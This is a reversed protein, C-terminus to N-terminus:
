SPLSLVPGEGKSNRRKERRGESQRQGRGERVGRDRASDRDEQGGTRGEGGIREQRERVGTGTGEAGTCWQRTVSM